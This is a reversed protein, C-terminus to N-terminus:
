VTGQEGFTGAVNVVREVSGARLLDLPARNELLSNPSLLFTLQSWGDRENLATLTQELGAIPGKSDFQCIPYGFGRQGQPIAILKGNQRRKDVAQRTLRLVKAVEEATMLGGARHLLQQQVELGKLYPSALPEYQELQSLIEPSRLAHFLVLFNSNAAATEALAKSPLTKTIEMVAQFAREMFIRHAGDTPVLSIQSRIRDLWVPIESESSRADAAM